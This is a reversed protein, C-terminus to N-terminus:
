SLLELLMPSDAGAKPASSKAPELDAIAQPTTQELDAAEIRLGLTGEAAASRM